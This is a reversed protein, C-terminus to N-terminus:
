RPVVALRNQLMPAGMKALREDQDTNTGEESFHGLLDYLVSALWRYSAESQQTPAADDAATYAAKLAKEVRINPPTTKKSDYDVTVQLKGFPSPAAKIDTREIHRTLQKKFWVDITDFKTNFDQQWEGVHWSSDPGTMQAMELGYWGGHKFSVSIRKSESVLAITVQKDLAVYFEALRRIFDRAAAEWRALYEADKKAKADTAAQKERVAEDLQQKWTNTSGTPDETTTPTTAM